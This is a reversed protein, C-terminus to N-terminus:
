KPKEKDRIKIISYVLKSTNDIPLIFFKLFKIKSMARETTIYNDFLYVKENENTIIDFGLVRELRGNKNYLVVRKKYM